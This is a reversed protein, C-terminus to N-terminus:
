WAVWGGDVSFTEGTVFSAEDSSLFLAANAIERPTGLRKMPHLGEIMAKGEPTACTTARILPTDIGGPAISNVRIGKDAYDVACTRTLGVIAHKAATYAAATPFGVLGAASSINVISGGGNDFMAALQHRMCRIVGGLNVDLLEDIDASELTHLLGVPGLIGACNVAGYLPGLKRSTQKVADAVGAEDRVDVALALTSGKAHSELAGAVDNLAAENTDLLAVSAGEEHLRQAVAEGIGSAAGTILCVKGSIRGNTRPHHTM